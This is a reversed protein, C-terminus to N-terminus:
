FLNPSALLLRCYHAKRGKRWSWIRCKMWRASFRSRPGPWHSHVAILCRIGCEGSNMLVAIHRGSTVFPLLLFYFWRYAMPVCRTPSLVKGTGSHRLADRFIVCARCLLVLLLTFLWLFSSFFATAFAVFSCAHSHANSLFKITKTRGISTTRKRRARRSARTSRRKGAVAGAFRPIM